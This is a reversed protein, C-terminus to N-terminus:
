SCSGAICSGVWIWFLVLGVSILVLEWNVYLKRKEQQM